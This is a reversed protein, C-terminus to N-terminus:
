SAANSELKGGWVLRVVKVPSRLLARGREPSEFSKKDKLLSEVVQTCEPKSMSRFYCELSGWEKGECGAHRARSFLDPGVM